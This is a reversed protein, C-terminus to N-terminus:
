GVQIHPRGAGQATATHGGQQAGGGGEGGAGGGGGRDPQLPPGAVRASGGGPGCDPSSWSLNLFSFVIIM